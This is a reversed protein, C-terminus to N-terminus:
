DLKLAKVDDSLNVASGGNVRGVFPSNSVVEDVVKAEFVCNAVEDIKANILENPKSVDGVDKAGSVLVKGDVLEEAAEDTRVVEAGVDTLIADNVVAFLDVALDFDTADVVSDAAVTTERRVDALELTVVGLVLMLLLLLLKITEVDLLTTAASELIEVDTMATRDVETVVVCRLSYKQM